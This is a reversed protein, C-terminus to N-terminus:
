MPAVLTVQVVDIGGGLFGGECYMLYYRWLDVFRADFREPLAGAAVTADFRARWRRLTEAYHAGFSAGDRWALGAAEALVRLRSESVLMGGPFVWRQIFDVNAAYAPFVADDIAIFQLAARAGPKLARAIAAIYDPWYEQGVAEIMEISVVGDYRETVDRYDTLTFSATGLGAAALRTEAYDRQEASLTIGHLDVGARAAQEAFSGWGSGIELLRDGPRAGTRDLMARLKRAQAAELSEGSDIPEAFLASSYTLSPDLWAAYFDNGLDYHDHINRRAGRRDNRRARHWARRLLRGAGRARGAGGLTRRNLMFLEFLAVPDPSTWEKAAWAEYWGASGGTALRCLSRWRVLDVVAEPGPARAGLTDHSGDPLTVTIRGEALGADIRALVRRGLGAFLRDSWRVPRKRTLAHM